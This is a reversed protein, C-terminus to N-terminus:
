VSFLYCEKDWGQGWQNIILIIWLFSCVALVFTHWASLQWALRKVMRAKVKQTLAADGCKLMNWSASMLFQLSINLAVEGESYDAGLDPVPAMMRVSNSVIWNHPHAVHSSHVETASVEWFPLPLLLTVVSCQICWTSPTCGESGDTVQEGSKLLSWWLRFLLWTEREIYIYIYIYMYIHTHISLFISHTQQDWM